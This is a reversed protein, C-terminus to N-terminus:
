GDEQNKQDEQDEQHQQHSYNCSIKHTLNASNISSHQKSDASGEKPYSSSDRVDGSSAASTLVSRGNIIVLSAFLQPPSALATFARNSTSSAILSSAAQYIWPPPHAQTICAAILNPVICSSYRLHFLSASSAAFRIPQPPHTTTPYSPTSLPLLSRFSSLLKQGAVLAKQLWWHWCWLQEGIVTLNSSMIGVSSTKELM